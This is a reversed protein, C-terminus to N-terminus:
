ACSKVIEHPILHGLATAWTFETPVGLKRGVPQLLVTDVASIAGVPEYWM